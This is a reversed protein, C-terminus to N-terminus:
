CGKQADVISQIFDEGHEKKTSDFLPRLIKRFPEKDPTDFQVGKGKLYAIAEGTLRKQAERNVAQGHAAAKMLLQRDAETMRQFYRENIILPAFGVVVDALAVYKAVEYWRFTRMSIMPNAEGDIVGQQLATFVEPFPLPTPQAGLLDYMQELLKDPARMKLGEFDAPKLLPRKTNYFQREGFTFHTLVRVGHSKRLEEALAGVVPGNAVVFSCELSRFLYPISFAEYKRQFPSMNSTSPLAMDLTGLQVDRANEVEGGLQASPFINVIIEKNSEAEVMEKFAEVGINFSHGPPTSVSLKVTFRARDQADAPVSYTALTLMGVAAIATARGLISGFRQKM